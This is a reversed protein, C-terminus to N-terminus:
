AKSELRVARPGRRKGNRFLCPPALKAHEPPLQSRDIEKRAHKIEQDAIEKVLRRECEKEEDIKLFKEKHTQPDWPDQNLKLSTNHNFKHTQMHTKISYSYPHNPPPQRVAESKQQQPDLISNAPLKYEQALAKGKNTQDLQEKNITQTKTDTLEVKNDAYWRKHIIMNQIKTAALQQEELSPAYYEEYVADTTADTQTTM